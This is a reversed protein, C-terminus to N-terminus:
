AGFVAISEAINQYRRIPIFQQVPQAMSGQEVMAPFKVQNM